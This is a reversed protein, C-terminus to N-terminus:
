LTMLLADHDSYYPSYREIEAIEANKSIYCHDIFRGIIQTPEKMMSKFGSKLLYDIVIDSSEEKSCINFDGAIVTKKKDNVIKALKAVKAM